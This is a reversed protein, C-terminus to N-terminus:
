EDDEDMFRSSFEFTTLISDGDVTYCKGCDCRHTIVTKFVNLTFMEGTIIKGCTCRRPTIITTM